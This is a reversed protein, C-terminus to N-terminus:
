CQDTQVGRAGARCRGRSELVPGSNEVRFDRPGPAAREEGPAPHARAGSGSPAEPTESVSRSRTDGPPNAANAKGSQGPMWCRVEADVQLRPRCCWCFLLVYSKPSRGRGRLNECRLGPSQPKGLCWAAVLDGIDGSVRCAYPMCVRCGSFRLALVM